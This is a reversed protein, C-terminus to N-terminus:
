LRCGHIQVRVRNVRKSEYVHISTYMSKSTFASCVHVHILAKRSHFFTQDPRDYLSIVLLVMSEFCFRMIM